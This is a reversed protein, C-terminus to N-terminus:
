RIQQTAWESLKERGIKANHRIDVPFGSHILFHKINKTHEFKAGMEKLESLLGSINEGSDNAELEVCIVPTQQGKPGVGALATRFVRKHQNFIRECPITFFVENEAEVRHTKRGCFWLRGKEDIRGVDGMRHWIQDGEKIKALKTSEDRKYYKKTVIPGKVTIEGIENTDCFEVNEWSEIPEDTIKIIKVDVHGIPTGVCTGGGNATEEATEVLIAKSGISAVPLSETAGYPTYVQADGVLMKHVRNLIDNRAPAGCSLIKNISPMKINYAAGYRSLTDVLAPSGFMSTAGNDNIAELIKVPDAQAPKTADMDPVVTTMGLCVDFLAFLPFTAVDVDEPGFNYMEQIFNVQSTLIGHSYVAGKSIGTSGSTFMIAGMQDFPLQNIEFPSDDEDRLDELNYGGWFLRKGLTVVTKITSTGWRLIVRAANAATIGIFAEPAAEALCKKLNKMGMGPDIMVIVAGIKQLSFWTIFFEHSPKIMMVVKTGEKIGIKSLGRAYRNTEDELQKFTLHSYAVRGAKDRGAPIVIARKYPKTQAHKRIFNAMNVGQASASM